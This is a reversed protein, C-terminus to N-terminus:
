RGGETEPGVWGDCPGVRRWIIPARARPEWVHIVQQTGDPLPYPEFAKRASSLGRKRWTAGGMKVQVFSVGRDDVALLDAGLQDRKVFRGPAVQFMRELHAVTYGRAELWAKSRRKYYSGRAVASTM